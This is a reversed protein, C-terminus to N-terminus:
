NSFPISLFMRSMGNEFRQRNIVRRSGIRSGEPSSLNGTKRHYIVIDIMAANSFFWPTHETTHSRQCFYTHYLISKRM